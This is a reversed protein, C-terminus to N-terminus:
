RELLIRPDLWLYLLDVTLNILVVGTALIFVSAQVVPYDRNLIAQMTFLGVGPWTFVTEIVVAGGLIYGFQLGVVTVLPILANPLAHRTVVALERLGKGRGTRVYDETLVEIMTTRVLRTLLAMLNIAIAGAPMVVHALGGRGSTPLVGWSVAFLLIMMIALWFNPVSQGLLAVGMALLDIKSGRNAAALVGLPVALVIALLMATVTLQLTAPLRAAILPLSSQGHRLSVGFDGHVARSLFRWYQVPLPDDFGWAARFKTIQEATAGPPLMIEAPDGTLFTLLFSVLSVGLIVLVATALRTAIYARL